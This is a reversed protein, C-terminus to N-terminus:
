LDKISTRLEGFNRKATGTSAEQDDILSLTQCDKLSSHHADMFVLDYFTLAPYKEPVPRRWNLSIGHLCAMNVHVLQLTVQFTLIM